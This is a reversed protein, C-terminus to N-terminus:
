PRTTKAAYRVRQVINVVTGVQYIENPRPEYVGACHQTALFIKKDAALTAELARVSSGRGEFFLTGTYPFVVVGRIPMM